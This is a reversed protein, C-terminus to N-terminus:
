LLVQERVGDEILAPDESLAAHYIGESPVFMVVLEPSADLQAQYGKSALKTIHDRTQRAHRALHLARAEDTTADMASLYADLPVKADVVILKGGPLRVLVDPRLRGEGSDMSAQEVFDCHAVM